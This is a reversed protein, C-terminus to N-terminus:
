APGRGRPSLGRWPWGTARPGYRSMREPIRSRSRWRPASSAPRRRFDEALIGCCRRVAARSPTRLCGFSTRATARSKWLLTCTTLIILVGFSKLASFKEDIKGKKLYAGILYLIVFWSFSYGESLRFPNTVMSFCCFSLFVIFMLDQLTKKNITRIAANLFPKLIYLGTYASFFWYIDNSLPFFMNRITEGSVMDTNIFKYIVAIIVSYFVVQLWIIILKSWDTEKKEDTYGTFGSIIIFINVACYSWIEIFWYVKYQTMQPELNKLIGGLGLTHLLIVYFSSVIRLLDIGINRAPNDALRPRKPNILLRM